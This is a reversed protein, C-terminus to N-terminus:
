KKLHMLSLIFLLQSNEEEEEKKMRPQRDGLSQDM